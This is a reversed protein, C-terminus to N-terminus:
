FSVKAELFISNLNKNAGFPRTSNGAYRDWGLTLRLFDNWLYSFKPRLFSDKGKFNYVFYLEADWDFAQPNYAFRLSSSPRYRDQYNLILGNTTAVIKNGAEEILNSGTVDNPSKYKPFYRVIFQPQIRFDTFFPKELGIVSDLHSPQILPNEGNKNETKWYATETRLIWDDFAISFDSGIASAKRITPTIVYTPALITGSSSSLFFEPTHNFGRFASISIDWNSKNFEFKLAEESNSIKASPTQFDNMTINTPLLEPKYYVISHTAIPTFVATTVLPFDEPNLKFYMSTSGIRKTEEDPNLFTSDKATLYDTPNIGDTKGWPNIQKGIKLSMWNANHQIYAERINTFFGTGNSNKVSRDFHNGVFEIQARNQDSPKYNLNLWISESVQRYGRGDSQAPFYIDTFAKGSLIFKQSEEDAFAFISFAFLLLNFVILKHKM